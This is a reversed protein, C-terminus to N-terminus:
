CQASMMLQPYYEKTLLVHDIKYTDNTGPIIWTGTHMNYTRIISLAYMNRMQAFGILKQGYISTVDHLTYKRVV